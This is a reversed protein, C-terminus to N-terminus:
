VIGKMQPCMQNQHMDTIFGTLTVALVLAQLIQSTM